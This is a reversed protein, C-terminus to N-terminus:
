KGYPTLTTAADVANAQVPAIPVPSNDPPVLAMYLESRTSALVIREAADAPVAFTFLGSGPNTVASTNGATPAATTGIAIVNVNQYFIHEYSPAAAADASAASPNGTTFTGMLDVKDGPVILGAVSAVAGVSITIAVQGPPVNTTSFSTVSQAPTVFEDDVLIQGAALDLPAVKGKIVDLSTVASLPYYQKPISGAVIAGDAIASDGTTNKPINRAIKYVRVLKANGNARSQVTNLYLVTSVAAVTGLAIAVILILTRRASLSL